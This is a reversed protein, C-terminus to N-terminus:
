SGTHGPVAPPSEADTENKRTFIAIYDILSWVIVIASGIWGAFFLIELIRIGITIALDM